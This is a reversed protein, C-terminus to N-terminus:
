LVSEKSLDRSLITAVYEIFNLHVDEKESRVSRVSTAADTALRAEQKISAM